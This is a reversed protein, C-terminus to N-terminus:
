TIDIETIHYYCHVFFFSLGMRETFVNQGKGELSTLLYPFSYLPLTPYPPYIININNDGYHRLMIGM